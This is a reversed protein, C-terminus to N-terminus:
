NYANTAANSELLQDCEKSDPNVQKKTNWTGSRGSQSDIRHAGILKGDKFQFEYNSNSKTLAGLTGDASNTSIEYKKSIIADSM